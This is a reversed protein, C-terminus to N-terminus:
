NREALRVTHQHYAICQPLDLKGANVTFKQPLDTVEFQGLFTPLMESWLSTSEQVHVCYLSRM